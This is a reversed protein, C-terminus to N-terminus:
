ISALFKALKQVRIDFLNTGYWFEPNHESLLRLSHAAEDPTDAAHFVNNQTLLVTAEDQRPHVGKYWAEIEEDSLPVSGKAYKERLDPKGNLGFKLDNLTEQTNQDVGYLAMATVARTTLHCYMARYFPEQRSDRYIYDVVCPNMVVPLSGVVEIGQDGFDSVLEHQVCEFGSKIFAFGFEALRSEEITSAYSM